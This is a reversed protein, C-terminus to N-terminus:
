ALLMELCILTSTLLEVAWGLLGSIGGDRAVVWFNGYRSEQQQEKVFGARLEAGDEQSAAWTSRLAQEAWGPAGQM